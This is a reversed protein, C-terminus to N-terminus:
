QVIEVPAFRTFWRNGVGYGTHVTKGEHPGSRMDAYIKFIRGGGCKTQLEKVTRAWVHQGYQDMWLHNPKAARNHHNGM